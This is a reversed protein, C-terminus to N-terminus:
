DAKIGLRKIADTYRKSDAEILKGFDAPSGGGDDNKKSDCGALAIMNAALLM